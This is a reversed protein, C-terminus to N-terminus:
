VNEPDAEGGTVVQELSIMRRRYGRIQRTNLNIKSKVKNVLLM